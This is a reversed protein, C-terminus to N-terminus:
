LQQSVLDEIKVSDEVRYQGIASRILSKLVGGTKLKEGLEHALSRVFTGSSCRIKMTVAPLSILGADTELEKSGMELIDISRITVKKTQRPVEVGKRALKYMEKGQIKKASYPPVSQEIEGTFMPLIERLKEFLEESKPETNLHPLIELDYTPTEAGFAIEAIYEKEMEMFKAQKQTDDNTLVILVGEAMPDLTGAHGAKKLRLVGRAKAVVDFSTWNKPKYINIIMQTGNMKIGRGPKQM